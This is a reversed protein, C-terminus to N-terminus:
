QNHLSPIKIQSKSGRGWGESGLELNGGGVVLVTGHLVM